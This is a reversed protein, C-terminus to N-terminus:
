LDNIKLINELFGGKAGDLTISLSFTIPTAVGKVKIGYNIGMLMAVPSKAAINVDVYGIMDDVDDIDVKAPTLKASSTTIVLDNADTYARAIPSSANGFLAVGDAKTVPVWMSRAASIASALAKDATGPKMRMVLNLTYSSYDGLNAGGKDAIGLGLAISSDFDEFLPSLVGMGSYSLVSNVDFDTPLSVAIIASAGNAVKATLDRDLDKFADEGFFGTTMGKNDLSQANIKAKLGEIDITVAVYKGVFAKQPSVLINVTNDMAIRDRKWQALPKAKAAEIKEQTKGVCNEPTHGAVMWLVNDKAVFGVRSSPMNFAEYGEGVGTHKFGIEELSATLDDLSTIALVVVGGDSSSDTFFAGSETNIGKIKNLNELVAADRASTPKYDGMSKIIEAPAFTVVVMADDAAYSLLMDRTDVTDKSCSTGLVLAVSVATVAALARTIIRPTM